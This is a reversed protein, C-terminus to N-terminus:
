KADELNQEWTGGQCRLTSHRRARKSVHRTDPIAMVCMATAFNTHCMVSFTAADANSRIVKLMMIGTLVIAGHISAKSSSLWCILLTKSQICTVTQLMTTILGHQWTQSTCGSVFSHWAVIPLLAYACRGSTRQTQQALGIHRTHHLTRCM